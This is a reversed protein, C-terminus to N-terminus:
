LKVKIKKVAMKAKTDMKKSLNTKVIAASEPPIASLGDEVGTVIQKMNKRLQMIINVATAPFAIGLVIVIGIIIKVKTGWKEPAEEQKINQYEEKKAYDGAKVFRGKEDLYGMTYKLDVKHIQKAQNRDGGNFMAGTAKLMNPGAIWVTLGIIAAIGLLVIEAIGKKNCM